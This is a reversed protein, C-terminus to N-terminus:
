ATGQPEMTLLEWFVGERHYEFTEAWRIALRPEGCKHCIIAHLGDFLFLEDRDCHFHLCNPCVTLVLHPSHNRGARGVCCAM